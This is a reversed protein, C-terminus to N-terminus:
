KRAKNARRIARDIAKGYQSVFEDTAKNINKELAPRMVPRAPQTETGFEIYRWHRTDKGPLGDFASAPKNGGAGGMVGVRFMLDGTSRYRKGSWREKINEAINAATEPDDLTLANAKAAERVIQAAKRLAFRGGKYQVDHSVSKLKAQLEDLGTLEFEVGDPM